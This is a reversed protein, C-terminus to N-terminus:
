SGSISCWSTYKAMVASDSLSLYGPNIDIRQVGAAKLGDVYALLVSIDFNPIFETEAFELNAAMIIPKGPTESLLPQIASNVSAIFHAETCPTLLCPQQQSALPQVGFVLAAVFAIM